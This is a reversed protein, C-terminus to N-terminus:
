IKRVPLGYFHPLAKSWQSEKNLKATQKALNEKVRFQVIKTVLDYPIPQDLPFQVSGKAGQYESLEKKFATNGSPMAYFGIHEKWGAFYVLNGHLKFAPMGYSIAETAKPAAKQITQRMKQLIEQVDKPFEQIYADIDSARSRGESEKQYKGPWCKPCVPQDKTKYFSHGRSCIVLKTKDTQM